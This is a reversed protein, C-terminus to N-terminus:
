NPEPITSLRSRRYHELSEVAPQGHETGLLSPTGSGVLRACVETHDAYASAWAQRLEVLAAPHSDAHRLLIPHAVRLRQLLHHHDAAMLGSFRAPMSPRIDDRYYRPHVQGTYRLAAGSARFLRTLGALDAAPDHHAPPNILAATRMILGQMLVAFVQHGIIWRRLPDQETAARPHPYRSGIEIGAIEILAAVLPPPGDPALRWATVIAGVALATGGQQTVRQIGYYRDHQFFQRERRTRGQDAAPLMAMQASIPAIANYLEDLTRVGALAPDAAAPRHLLHPQALILPSCTM